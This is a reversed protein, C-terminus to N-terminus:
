QKTEPNPKKYFKEIAHMKCVIYINNTTMHEYRVKIETSIQIYAPFNRKELDALNKGLYKVSQCM